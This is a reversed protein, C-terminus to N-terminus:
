SRQDEWMSPDWRPVGQMKRADIARAPSPTATSPAPANGTIAEAQSRRTADIEDATPPAIGKRNRYARDRATLGSMLKAREAHWEPSGAIPSPKRTRSM